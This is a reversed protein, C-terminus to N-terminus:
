LSFARDIEPPLFPRGQRNISTGIIKAAVIPKM